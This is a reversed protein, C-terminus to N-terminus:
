IDQCHHTAIQQAKRVFLEDIHLLEFALQLGIGSQVMNAFTTNTMEKALDFQPYENRIKNVLKSQKMYYDKRETAKKIAAAREKPLIIRAGNLSTGTEKAFVQVQEETVEEYCVTGLFDDNKCLFQYTEEESACAVGELALSATKRILLSDKHIVEYVEQMGFGFNLLKLFTANQTEEELDFSPYLQRIIHTTENLKEQLTLGRPTYLSNHGYPCIYIVKNPVSNIRLLYQDVMVNEVTGIQYVCQSSLRDWTFQKGDLTRLNALYKDSSWMSSTMIPNTCCYGYDENYPQQAKYLLDRRGSHADIGDALTQAFDTKKSEDDLYNLFSDVMDKSKRKRKKIGEITSHFTFALVAFALIGWIWKTAISEAAIAIIAFVACIATFIAIMTWKGKEM